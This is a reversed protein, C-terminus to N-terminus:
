KQMLDELEKYAREFARIEHEWYKQDDKSESNARALTLAHHWAGKHTIFDEPVTLAEERLDERIQMLIRGLFNKGVGDCEGWYTDGWTNGEILIADGTALLKVKMAPNAFKARVIEEMYRLKLSDWNDRMRVTRGLRKAQGATLKRDQFLLYESELECKSAQYAHESTSWELGDWLVPTKYFNSLFAYEGSFSRIEGRGFLDTM